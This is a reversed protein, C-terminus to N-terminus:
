YRRIAQIEAQYASKMMAKAYETQSIPVIVSDHIPIHPIWRVTLDDIAQTKIAADLAQLKLGIIDTSVAVEPFIQEIAMMSARAKESTMIENYVITRVAEASSKVNLRINFAEKIKSRSAQPNLGLHIAIQTYVDEDGQCWRNDNGNSSSSNCCPKWCERLDGAM